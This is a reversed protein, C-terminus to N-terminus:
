KISNTFLICNCRGHAIPTSRHTCISSTNLGGQSYLASISNKVQNMIVILRGRPQMFQYVLCYHRAKRAIVWCFSSISAVKLCGWAAIWDEEITGDAIITVFIRIPYCFVFTYRYAYRGNASSYAISRSTSITLIFIILKHLCKVWNLLSYRM